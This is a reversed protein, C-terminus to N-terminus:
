QKKIQEKKEKKSRLDKIKTGKTIENLSLVGNEEDFLNNYKHIRKEAEDEGFLSVAIDRVLEKINKEPLENKIKSLINFGLLHLYKTSKFGIEDELFFMLCFLDYVHVKVTDLSTLFNSNKAMLFKGKKSM